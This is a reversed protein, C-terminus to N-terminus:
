SYTSSESDYPSVPSSTKRYTPQTISYPNLSIMNSNSSTNVPVRFHENM